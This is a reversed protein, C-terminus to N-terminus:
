EVTVVILSADDHFNGQCFRPVDELIRTRITQVGQGRVARAAAIVREYGFEEDRENAAETVGDTALVLCDGSRLQFEHDAYKAERFMGLIMSGETLITAGDGRLVIPQTHGANEFRLMLTDTTLVGYFLTVFKGPAISGCLVENLKACLAGPSSIGPAFARVAAQLNTMLLAATIGKGSVDAICLGLQNPALTLVDFYDGGVSRVPEWACAIQFPKLQPIEHPLLHAQIEHATKLEAEHAELTIQGLTIQRELELNRGLLGARAKASSYIATGTILSIFTGIRIDGWDFQLGQRGRDLIIHTASSAFWSALASVPILVSLYVLWDWPAKRNVLLPAAVSVALTISNGIIFTFLFVGTPNLTGQLLWFLGSVAVAIGLLMLQFQWVGFGVLSNLEALPRLKLPM